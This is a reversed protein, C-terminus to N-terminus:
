RILKLDQLDKPKKTTDIKQWIAFSAMHGYKDKIEQISLM